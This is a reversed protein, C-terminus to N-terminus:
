KGKLMKRLRDRLQRQMEKISGTESLDMWLLFRGFDAVHIHTDIFGPLVTKGKLRIVKTNEGIFETIESNAGVKLIRGNRVAVAQALPQSPNMTLVKGDLLALNASM